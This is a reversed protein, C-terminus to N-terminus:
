IKESLLKLEKAFNEFNIEANFNLQWNKVSWQRMIQVKDPNNIFFLIGEAIEIPTPNQSLLMGVEKSVIEPVGGVATALIPIGCSQAEQMSVPRGESASVSIFLDVPNKKYYNLVEVNDIWGFLNIKIHDNSYNSIENKLKVLLPGDGFHSWYIQIEKNINLLEKLGEFILEVRKNEDNASCSVIRFKNDDSPNSIFGPSPVGLSAIRIKAKYDPYRTTMYEYANKSVVYFQDVLELTKKRHYVFGREEYLDIEHARTILKINPYKQKTLGLGLTTATCWYTYLLFNKEAQKGVYTEFWKVVNYANYLYSLSKKIENFKLQVGLRLFEVIFIKSFIIEPNQANSKVVIACIFIIGLKCFTNM